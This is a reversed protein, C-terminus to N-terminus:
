NSINLSFKLSKETHMKVIENVVAKDCTYIADYNYSIFEGKYNYFSINDIDDPVIKDKGEFFLEAVKKDIGGIRYITANKM